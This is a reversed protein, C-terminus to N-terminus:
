LDKRNFLLLVLYLYLSSLILPFILYNGSLILYHYPLLYKFPFLWVKDDLASWIGFVPLLIGLIISLFITVGSKKFLVSLFLNLSIAYVLFLVMLFYEKILIDKAFFCIISFSVTICFLWFFLIGLFKGFVFSKRSIKTVIFRVTQLEVERNISDHSLSFVFLFGLFFVLLKISSAYTSDGSMGNMLNGSLFSSSYYSVLLFFLIVVISKFSKFLGFFENKAISLM